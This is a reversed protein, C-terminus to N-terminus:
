VYERLLYDYYRANLTIHLKNAKYHKKERFSCRITPNIMAYSLSAERAELSIGQAYTRKYEPNKLTIRYPMEVIIEEYESCSIDEKYLAEHFIWTDTSQIMM